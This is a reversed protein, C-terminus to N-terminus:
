ITVSEAALRRKRLIDNISEEVFDERGILQSIVERLSLEGQVKDRILDKIRYYVFTWGLLTFWAITNARTFRSATPDPIYGRFEPLFLKRM